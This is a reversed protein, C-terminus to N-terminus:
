PSASMFVDATGSAGAGLVFTVRGFQKSGDPCFGVLEFAWPGNTSPLRIPSLQRLNTSMAANDAVPIFLQNEVAAGTFTKLNVRARFWNCGVGYDGLGAAAVTWSQTTASASVTLDAVEFEGSSAASNSAPFNFEAPGKTRAVVGMTQAM